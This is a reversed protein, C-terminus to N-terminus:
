LCVLYSHFIYSIHLLGPSANSDLLLFVCRSRLFLNYNDTPLLGPLHFLLSLLIIQLQYCDYHFPHNSKPISLVTSSCYLLILFSIASKSLIIASELLFILLYSFCTTESVTVPLLTSPVIPGIFIVPIACCYM